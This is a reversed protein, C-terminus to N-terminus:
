PPPQKEHALCEQLSIKDDFATVHTPRTPADWSTDVSYQRTETIDGSAQIAHVHAKEVDPPPEFVFLDVQRWGLGREEFV